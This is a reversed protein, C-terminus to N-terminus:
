AAKQMDRIKKTIQVIRDLDPIKIPVKKAMEDIDGEGTDLSKLGKEIDEDTLKFFKKVMKLIFGHRSIIESRIKRLSEIDNAEQGNVWNKEEQTMQTKVLPSAITGKWGELVSEGTEGKFGFTVTGEGVLLDNKTGSIKMGFGTGRVTAVTTPTEVSYEAVGGLKTLRSWTSGAEQSITINKQSLEKISIQTNPELRIIEGEYLSITAKGELTQVKDNISLEMKDIAPQWGNGTDVQVTGEDIYLMAGIIKGSTLSVFFLVGIIILIVFFGILFWLWKKM